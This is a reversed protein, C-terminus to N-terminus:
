PPTTESSRPVRTAARTLAPDALLPPATDLGLRHNEFRQNVEVAALKEPNQRPDPFCRNLGSTLTPPWLCSAAELLRSSAVGLRPRANPGSALTPKTQVRPNVQSNQWTIRSTLSMTSLQCVIAIQNQRAPHRCGIFISHSMFGCHPRRQREARSSRSCDSNEMWPLPPMRGGGAASVRAPAVQM